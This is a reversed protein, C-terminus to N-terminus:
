HLFEKILRMILNKFTRLIVQFAMKHGSDSRFLTVLFEISVYHNHVPAAAAVACVFKLLQRVGTQQSSLDAALIHDIILTRTDDATLLTFRSKYSSGVLGFNNEFVAPYAGADITVIPKLLQYLQTPFYKIVEDINKLNMGEKEVIRSIFFLM